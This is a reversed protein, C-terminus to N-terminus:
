VIKYIASYRQLSTLHRIYFNQNSESLGDHSLQLHLVYIFCSIKTHFTFSSVTSMLM